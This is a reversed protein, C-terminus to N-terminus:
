PAKRPDLEFSPCNKGSTSTVRRKIEPCVVIKFTDLSARIDNEASPPELQYLPLDSPTFEAYKCRACVPGRTWREATASMSTTTDKAFAHARDDLWCRDATSCFHPDVCLGNDSRRCTM